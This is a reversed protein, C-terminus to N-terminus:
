FREALDAITASLSGHDARAQRQRAAGGHAALDKVSDLGDVCGLQQAHPRAANLLRTLLTRAQVCTANAPDLFRGDMGDRAAIFRNESLIEIEGAVPDRHFGEELELHAISQVLAALATTAESDSQVDMIRIEVTGFKPQPRVDWWLYTPEPFAGCRLLQDVVTMWREYSDFAQPIGVRPFSQFIPTRVSAMGSDRGQWFPSNASLALLLPLHLRLRNYLSMAREPDSVGVHVHLGFTPERRALERMSDYVEQHREGAAIQTETWLTSPHTGAAAARLGMRELEHALRRRLASAQAGAQLAGTHPDTALEVVADQTEDGLRSSLDGSAADLLEGVRTALRWDSAPDLLMVEEELGVSYNESEQWRWWESIMQHGQRALFEAHGYALVAV